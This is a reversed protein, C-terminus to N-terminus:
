NLSEVNESEASRLKFGYALLGEVITRGARKALSAEWMRQLEVEPARQLWEAWFEWHARFKERSLDTKGVRTDAEKGQSRVGVFVDGNRAHVVFIEDSSFGLRRYAEFLALAESFLPPITM